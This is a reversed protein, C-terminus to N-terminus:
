LLAGLALTFRDFWMWAAIAALGIALGSQGSLMLVFSAAIAWVIFVGSLIESAPMLWSGPQDLTSIGSFLQANLFLSYITVGWFGAFAYQSKTM